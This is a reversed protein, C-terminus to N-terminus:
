RNEGATSDESEFPAEPWVNRVLRMALAEGIFAFLLEIMHAVLIEGGSSAEEANEAPEVRAPRELFGDDNIRLCQLWSVEKQGLSLARSLLSRFGVIGVLDVLLQRLKECVRFVARVDPAATVARSDLSDSRAEYALLWQALVRTASTASSITEKEPM